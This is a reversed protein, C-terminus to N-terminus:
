QPSKVANKETVIKIVVVASAFHPVIGPSGNDGPTGEDWPLPRAVAVVM